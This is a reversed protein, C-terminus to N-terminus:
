AIGLASKLNAFHVDISYNGHAHQYLDQGLEPLSKSDTKLQEILDAAADPANSPFLLRSFEGCLVEPIGGMQTGIVPTGTAIAQMMVLPQADHCTSPIVVLDIQQFWDELCVYGDFHVFARIGLDAIQDAMHVHYPVPSDSDRGKFSGAVRLQVDHDRDRLIKVAVLLDDLGKEPVIRGAFGLRFPRHDYDHTRLPQDEVGEPVVKILGTDVGNIEWYDAVYRSVSAARSIRHNGWTVKAGVNAKTCVWKYYVSYPCGTLKKVLRLLPTVHIVHTIILEIRHRRVLSVIQFLDKFWGASTSLMPHDLRLQLTDKYIRSLEEDTVYDGSHSYALHVDHSEALHECFLRMSREAGGASSSAGAEIVLIKM